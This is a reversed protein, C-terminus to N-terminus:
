ILISPKPIFSQTTSIAIASTNYCFIPVMKYLIDYDSLQIKMWLINACCGLTSKRDMNCGAYDSDSFGKLDFGSCKPYWLGISPTGKLYSLIRKVVILHSKNLNALKGALDPGLNNLPVMPTKVSSSDSNEYKNLLDRTYKEQSISIGKDDQKIQLGLFYSLGGIMSMEFKKTMLKKFQKCLKNNTLGFIIDDVYVQVLLVDGKSKYIFLTNDIRRMVFKNQILFISLTEYWAKPGQKLRYLAKDLKCVYDPFESSEFGPPQKVYVEITCLNKDYDIGEEQSFGQAVMREKNRIVTGLEDKKNRFVWKSGISIKKPEIESLFDAFLCKCASAVILKAAMSRTLMGETPEGIINVLEIHQDRSWEVRILLMHVQQHMIFSKLSLCKLSEQEQTREINILDPPGEVDKTHPTKQENSTIVKPVHTDKTLETLSRGHPIIYFSFDYNSQYQRSPDYEQLFKAPPYRSSDDIRIEDVSTNTFMIAEMSEDFTVHYTEKIQQRRTNFVRFAKAVFSYGLFYGDDAKAYFKGLHDKHNHIFMPCRSYEDVIVLTYKEHNISM